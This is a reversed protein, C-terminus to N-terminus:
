WLPTAGSGRFRITKRAFKIVGMSLYAGAGDVQGVVPIRISYSYNIGVSAM